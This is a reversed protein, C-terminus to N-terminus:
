FHNVKRYEVTVTTINHGPRMPLGVWIGKKPHLLQVDFKTSGSRDMVPGGASMQQVLRAEYAQPTFGTTKVVGDVEKRLLEDVTVKSITSADIRDKLRTEEQLVDNQFYFSVKNTRPVDFIEDEPPVVNSACRGRDVVRQDVLIDTGGFRMGEPQRLHVCFVGYQTASPGSPADHLSLRSMDPASM